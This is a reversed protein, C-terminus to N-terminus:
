NMNPKLTLLEKTVLLKSWKSARHATCQCSLTVPLTTVQHRAQETQQCRKMIPIPLRGSALELDGQLHFERYIDAVTDCQPLWPKASCCLDSGTMVMTQALLRCMRGPHLLSLHM